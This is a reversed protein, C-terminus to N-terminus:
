PTACPMDGSSMNSEELGKSRATRIYDENLVELMASRTMRMVSASFSFGLTIAPFIVQQLNLVHSEELLGVYNGSTPLIGFYVSLIRLYDTHRAFLEPHSTWAHLLCAGSYTWSLTAIFPPYWALRCDSYDTCDSVSLIALELTVPFRNWILSLVPQGQRVSMGLNGQFVDGLWIFYQQLAPKDLGYYRELAARQGESLMGAETGLQATILDGPIFRIARM